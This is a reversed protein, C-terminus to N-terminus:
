APDSSGAPLRAGPMSLDRVNKQVATVAFLTLVFAMSYFGKVSLALRANWLGIALLLVAAMLSLWCLGTYLGTVAIGEGKDRVTKQLSVASFLGYLILTLYYGKENLQMDANWLGILYASAGVILAGWSSFVFAATPRQPAQHQPTQYSM